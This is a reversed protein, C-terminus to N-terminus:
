FKTSEFSNQKQDLDIYFITKIPTFFYQISELGVDKTEPLTWYVIPLSLILIAAFLLFTGYLTVMDQM